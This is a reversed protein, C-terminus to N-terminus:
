NKFYRTFSTVIKQDLQHSHEANVSKWNRFLQVPKNSQYGLSVLVLLQLWQAFRKPLLSRPRTEDLCKGKDMCSAPDEATLLM